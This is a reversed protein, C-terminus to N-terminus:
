AQLDEEEDGDDHGGSSALLEEEEEDEGSSLQLEEEEEEEFASALVEEEEEEAGAASGGGGAAAAEQEQRQRERECVACFPAGSAAAAAMAAAAPNSDINQAAAAWDRARTAPAEAGPEGEMPEEPPEAAQAATGPGSGASGGSNINVMTGKIDVGMQSIVVFNGGVKLTIQSPSEVVVSSTGKIHATQQALAVFNADTKVLHDSTVKVHNAGDVKLKNDGVVTVHNDAGVKAFSNEVVEAHNDTGVREVKKETTRVHTDKQSHLFVHEEGAKDEFELANFGGGGPTSRSKISMISADSSPDHPPKAADNYVRGTVIPRDPDGNLHEILVEQGNRPWMAMGWEAGAWMQSVRARMSRLGEREWNFSVRIRGWEDVDLEEGNENDVVASQVGHIRPWPTKERTRWKTTKPVARFACGFTTAGGGAARSEYGDEELENFSEICLFEADEMWDAGANRDVEFCQGAGIARASGGGAYVNADAQYSQAAIEALTGGASADAQSTQYSYIELRAATYDPQITKTGELSARPNEFDYDQNTATDPRIRSEQSFDDFWETQMSFSGGPQRAPVPVMWPMDPHAHGAKVIHLKAVGNEHTHYYYLGHREMLRSLFAFDSEQWQVCYELATGVTEHTEATVGHEDLVKSIIESVTTQEFIRSNRTQTLFWLPPVLTARYTSMGDDGRLLGFRMCVGTWYRTEGEPDWKWAVTMNKALVDRAKLTADNSYLELEIEYLQSLGERARMKHFLLVDDGFPSGVTAQRNAQTATRTANM